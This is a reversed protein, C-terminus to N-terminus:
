LGPVVDLAGKDANGGRTKLIEHIFDNWTKVFLELARFFLGLATWNYADPSGRQRDETALQM